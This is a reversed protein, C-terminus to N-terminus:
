FVWVSEETKLMLVSFWYASLLREAGRTMLIGARTSVMPPFEKSERKKEESGM